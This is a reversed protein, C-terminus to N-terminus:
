RGEDAIDSQRERCGSHDSMLKEEKREGSLAVCSEGLGCFCFAWGVRCPVTSFCLAHGFGTFHSWFM